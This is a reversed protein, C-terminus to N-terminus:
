YNFSGSGIGVAFQTKDEPTLESWDKRFQAIPYEKKQAITLSDPVTYVYDGALYRWVETMTAKNESM